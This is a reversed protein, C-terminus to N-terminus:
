LVVFGSLRDRVGELESSSEALEVHDAIEIESESSSSISLALLSDGARARKPEDFPSTTGGVIEEVWSGVLSSESESESEPVLVESEREWKWKSESRGTALSRGLVVGLLGVWRVCVGGVGAASQCSM